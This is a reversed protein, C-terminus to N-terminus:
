CPAKALAALEANASVGLPPLWAKAEENEPGPKPCANLLEMLLPGCPMLPENLEEALKLPTSLDNEVLKLAGPGIRGM